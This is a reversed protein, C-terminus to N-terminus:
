KIEGKVGKMNERTITKKLTKIQQEEQMVVLLDISDFDDDDKNNLDDDTRNLQYQLILKNSIQRSIIAKREM